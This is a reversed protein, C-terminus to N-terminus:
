LIVLIGGENSSETVAIDRKKNSPKTQKADEVRGMCQFKTTNSDVKPYYNHKCAFWLIDGGPVMSKGNAPIQVMGGGIGNPHGMKCKIDRRDTTKICFKVEVIYGCSNTLYPDTFGPRAELSVCNGAYAAPSPGHRTTAEAGTSVLGVVLGVAILHKM